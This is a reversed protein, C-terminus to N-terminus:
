QGPIRQMVSPLPLTECVGGCVPGGGEVARGQPHGPLVLLLGQSAWINCSVPVCNRCVSFIFFLLADSGSPSTLLRM